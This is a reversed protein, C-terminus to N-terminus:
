TWHVLAGKVYTFFGNWSVRWGKQREGNNVVEHPYDARFVVYDGARVSVELMISPVVAELEKRPYPYGNVSVNINYKRDLDVKENKTFKKNYVRLIGLGDPNRLYLNHSIIMNPAAMNLGRSRLSRVSTFDEHIGVPNEVDTPFIFARFYESSQNNHMLAKLPLDYKESELLSRIKGRIDLASVSLLARKYKDDPACCKEFYREHNQRHDFLSPGLTGGLGGGTRPDLEEKLIADALMGAEDRDIFSRVIGVVCTGALIGRVAEGPGNFELSGFRPRDYPYKPM